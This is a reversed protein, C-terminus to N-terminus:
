LKDVVALIEVPERKGRIPMTGLNILKFQTENKDLAKRTWGSILIDYQPFLKNLGDIRAALNVANGIVTYEQREAQGIAGALAVGTNIGIGVRLEREGKRAYMKNLGKISTRIDLATLVAKYAGDTVENPAGYVILASDGSFKTVMGGHRQAAQVVLPLFNNLMGIIEVPSHSESYDTFERIDCFLVSVVKNEGDLKVHGARMVDVVDNGAFRGFMERLWVREQLQEAMKNFTAGLQGIEDEATYKVRQSLDGASMKSVVKSLDSLPMTIQRSFLVTLGGGVILTALALIIGQTTIENIKESLPKTSMAVSVAGLINRGLYIPIGAVLQGDERNKYSAEQKLEILQTGLSDPQNSFLMSEERSDVLARGQADYVIFFVIDQNDSILRALDLLEDIQGLYLQDRINLSTAELFLEAQEELDKEFNARERVISVYSLSLVALTVLLSMLSAIKSGLSLNTWFNKV